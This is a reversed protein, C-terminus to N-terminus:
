IRRRGVVEDPGGELGAAETTRAETSFAARQASPLAKAIGDITRPIPATRDRTRPSM